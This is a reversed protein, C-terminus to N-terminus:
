RRRSPDDLLTAGDARQELPTQLLNVDTLVDM